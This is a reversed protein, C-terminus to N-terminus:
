RSEVDVEHCLERKGPDGEGMELRCAAEGPGAAGGAGADGSRGCRAEMEEYLRRMENAYGKELTRYSAQSKAIEDTMKVLLCELCPLLDPQETQLRSWM